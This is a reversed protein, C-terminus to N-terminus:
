NRESNALVQRVFEVDLELITAIEEASMKKAMKAITKAIGDEVGEQYVRTERFDHVQLM